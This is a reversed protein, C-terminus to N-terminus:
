ATTIELVIEGLVGGPFPSYNSVQLLLTVSDGATEPLRIIEEGLVSGGDPGM